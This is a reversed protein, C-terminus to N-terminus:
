YKETRNLDSPEQSTVNSRIAGGIVVRHIEVLDPNERVDFVNAIGDMGESILCRCGRRAVMDCIAGGM